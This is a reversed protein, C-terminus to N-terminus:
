YCGIPLLIIFTTGKGPHSEVRIGGGIAEVLKKCVVLGLGIGRAKTTFLPQFLKEMNEPSIGTGTDEISIEVFGAGSEQDRGGSVQVVKIYLEGGEPMAQVANTIINELVQIGQFMDVEIFPLTDPIDTFTKINGPIGCKDLSQDVMANVDIPSIQPGKTHSFDLLDTIIRLSNDIEDRIIGLYEKVTDDAGPMVTKLFYIANNMVGLPNRLENGVAGALEGLIALKEKRVLEEQTSILEVVKQQLEENLRCVEAEAQKRVTIEKQLVVSQAELKHYSITLHELSKNLTNFRSSAVSKPECRLIISGFSHPNKPEIVAGKSYSAIPSDDVSRWTLTGPILSKNRLCLRIYRLVKEQPDILFTTIQQGQLAAMDVGLMHEAAPNAGLIEGTGSVFFCAEPFAATITLFSEVLM